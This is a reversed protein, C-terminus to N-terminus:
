LFDEPNLNAAEFAGPQQKALQALTLENGTRDVYKDLKLGGRRFLAGKTKGLVEDQFAASQRGLFQDYTTDAPTRGVVRDAWRQRATAVEIGDRKAIARFDVERAKGTRTDVVFPRSGAVGQGSMIAAMISRCGAHAPPRAGAPRLQAAAPTRPPLSGGPPPALKGDRARCIPSTRGDLTASWRLAEIIDANGEWITERAANSVHNVATRVVTEANRRSIALVGDTFGRARTGAVRAVMQDVTEGQAVGLQVAETLRGQDARALSDFWQSLTRSSGPTAEFPKTLVASRIQQLNIGGFQVEVPFLSTKITKLEFDAEIKGLELSTKRVRKRFTGMLKRRTERIETLIARVREDNPRLRRGAVRRLKGRLKKTLEQDSKELLGLVAKVEGAAM